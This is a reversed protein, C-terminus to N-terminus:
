RGALQVVKWIQAEDYLQQNSNRRGGGFAGSGISLGLGM